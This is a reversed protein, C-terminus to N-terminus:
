EGEAAAGATATVPIPLGVFGPFLV